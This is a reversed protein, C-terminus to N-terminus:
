SRLFEAYHGTKQAEQIFIKISEGIAPMLYKEVYASQEKTLDKLLSDLGLTNEPSKTVLSTQM